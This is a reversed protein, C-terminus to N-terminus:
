IHILSLDLELQDSTVHLRQTGDEDEGGALALRFPMWRRGPQDPQDVSLMQLVAIWDEDTRQWGLRIALADAALGHLQEGAARQIRLDRIDLETSVATMQGHAVDVWLRLDAVGTAELQPLPYHLLSPLSLQQGKIYARGEWTRIDPDDGSFLADLELRYGVDGPLWAHGTLRHEDGRNTLALMVSSFRRSPRKRLDDRFTVSSEHLSLRTLGALAAVGEGADGNGTAGPALERFEELYFAGGADRVLVLDTGIIDIGSFRVVQHRLYHAVDLRLWIEEIPFPTGSPDPPGITVQKLKLVPQLGRWTAQMLGVSVPRGLAESATQEVEARYGTLSPVWLRAATLAVAVLFLAAVALYWISHLSRKLM